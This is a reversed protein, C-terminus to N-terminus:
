MGYYSIFHFDFCDACSKEFFPAHLTQLRVIQPPTPRRRIGQQSITRCAKEMM